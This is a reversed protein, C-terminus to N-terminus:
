LVPVDSGPARTAVEPKEDIVEIALLVMSVEYFIRRGSLLMRKRGIREFEHEVEFDEFHNNRPLIEELLERLRPINWAGAHLDYIFRGETNSADLQFTEYFSRSAAVVHLEADLALFPERATHVVGAAFQYIAEATSRPKRPEDVALIQQQLDHIDVFTIVVGDIANEITRYPMIRILYWRGDKSQAKLEKLVLTDLVHEADEVLTEHKLNSVIHGIPRGVDSPILNIVGSAEATFRKVCLSNDLFITAIRTSDLLNKMDDRAQTLQDIKSQLETNVTVLEENLSHLEEKSTELEENASQLEENTSQLEENTSKLEENSTELEEITTQLHERTHGLEHELEAVRQRQQAPVRGRARAGEVPRPLAREEFVVMLLGRLNEPESLRKVTLNVMSHGGNTRVELGLRRVEKDQSRAKRIASALEFKLGERAMDAINLNAHGSAPELYKGTRGHIYLINGKENIIACAPSYNALLLRTVVEPFAGARGRGPGRGAAPEKEVTLRSLPFTPFDIAAPSAAVTEKRQYIKWKKDLPAFYDQFGGISESSGLFLLGGPRLAYHFLPFMKKQLEPDLYILFNRCCLLDLKTFPPDKVANQPAFVAMERIDKRVRFVEGDKVFFRKLREPTVDAAINGPYAGARASEIAREDIDTGFVQVPCSRKLQDLGERLVIAVSYAEEGTSCAPVWARVTYEAPKGALLKPLWKRALANFAGSDRFFNTVGILLEKFLMGAEQPNQQLFRLYTTPDEIQHVNMRREIRRCLTNKKYLSLDHGTQTRLVRLMKYLTDPAKGVAGDTRPTAWPFPRQVYQILQEPMKDPPLVYDVLGTEIASSPMGDYKASKIEQVMVMGMEEKIAKLGLTGDTGNGSLIIGVALGRQDEALSRFFIDIPLRMGHPTVPPTLRLVGNVITMDKNPPILYVCEPQLRARNRAQLVKMRTFRQLLEPMMSTRSPDLHPVLVFAMGSGAPMHKFFQEFAELGGASAGIGVVPFSGASTKAAVDNDTRVSPPTANASRNTVSQFRVKRKKIREPKNRATMLGGTSTRPEGRAPFMPNFCGAM